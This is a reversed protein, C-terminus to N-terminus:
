AINKLNNKVFQMWKELKKKHSHSHTRVANLKEHNWYHYPVYLTLTKQNAISPINFLEFNHNELAGKSSATAFELYFCFLASICKWILRYKDSTVRWRRSTNSDFNKFNDSPLSGHFSSLIIAQVWEFLMETISMKGFSDCVGFLFM